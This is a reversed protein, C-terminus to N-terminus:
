RTTTSQPWACVAESAATPRKRKVEVEAKIPPAPTQLFTPGLDLAQISAGAVRTSFFIRVACRGMGGAAFLRSCPAKGFSQALLL